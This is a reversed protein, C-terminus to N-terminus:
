TEGIAERFYGFVLYGLFISVTAVSIQVVPGPHESVLYSIFVPLAMLRNFIIWGALKLGNIISKHYKPRVAVREM